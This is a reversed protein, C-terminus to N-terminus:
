RPTTRTSISITQRIKQRKKPAINQKTNSRAVEMKRKKPKQNQMGKLIIKGLAKVETQRDKLSEQQIYSNVQIGLYIIHTSTNMEVREKINMNKDEDNENKDGCEMHVERYKDEQEWEGGVKNKGIGEENDSM